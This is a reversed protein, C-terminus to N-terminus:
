FLRFHHRETHLGRAQLEAEFPRHPPLVQPPLRLKTGNTHLLTVRVSLDWRTDFRVSSIQDLPLDNQDGGSHWKIQNEDICLGSRTDRWLDWIAPLTPLSLAMLLWINAQIIHYSTLLAAYIAVLVAILMPSRSKRAFSYPAAM